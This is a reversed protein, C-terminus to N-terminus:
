GGASLKRLEADEPFRRLAVGLLGAASRPDGLVKLTKVATAYAEPAQSTEVMRRLTDRAADNDGQLAYLLTLESYAQYADPFRRIEEKFAAGAEEAKGLRGYLDGLLLYLGRALEPDPNRRSEFESAAQRATELAPEVEGKERLVRALTVLPTLLTGREEVARRATREAGELDGERLAIQALLDRARAPETELALEAHERAEDLRGLTALTGALALALHPAGRSLEMAKRYAELAEEPRGVQLLARGLSDWVDLMKPHEGAVKRLVAVAQPYDRESLLNFAKKLEELTGLQSKPDPLSEGQDVPAASIYGLAALQQQTASDVAGPTPVEGELDAVAHRLEALVRRHDRLVNNRQAPDAELDYLEPDPGGIYQFRGRVVSALQSWGFHLRPFWTEAYIVREGAEPDADLGLLSRGHLAAPPTAGLLEMVTPRVDILQAPQSVRSGGRRGGPLKVLLPVHIAEQYLLVGHEREGHDDLGEGHDSLFLILSRDYLDRRRLDAVLEGLVADAAAVEGDYPADRYRGAFPEPPQYPAHPEYLHLFLFFPRDAVGDLWSLALRLTEGGDRQVGGIGPGKRDEAGDDYFDFGESLGTSRRLVFASVAAGTAYGRQHLFRPMYPEVDPRLRFGLNDQVGHQPPLLGTLLSTHSPLTLPVHSYAREFLISDRALADVAPTTVGRYGYAPLHDARLTDVSVLVIPTGDPLRPAPEGRGGCGAVLLGLLLGAV